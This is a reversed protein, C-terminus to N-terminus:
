WTVRISHTWRKKIVTSVSSSSSPAIEVKDGFKKSLSNYSHKLRGDFVDAMAVLKVPGQQTSLANAAAGTGRGGCGVLAIQITEDGAAYARTSIQGAALAATVGATTKLVSRRSVNSDHNSPM